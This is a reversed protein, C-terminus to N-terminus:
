QKPRSQQASFIDTHSGDSLGLFLCQRQLVKFETSATIRNIQREPIGLLQATRKFLIPRIFDPYAIAVLHAMEAASYFILRKKVFEYAVQREQNSFQNLWLALSEIFRMGPSFQEYEDYKYTAIDRLVPRERALDEPTWGMVKALVDEALANKM